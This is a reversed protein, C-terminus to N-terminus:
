AAPSYRDSISGQSLFTSDCLLGYRGSFVDFLYHFLNSFLNVLRLSVYFELPKM